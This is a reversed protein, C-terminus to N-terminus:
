REEKRLRKVLPCTKETCKARDNFVSCMDAEYKHEQYRYRCTKKLLRWSVLHKM